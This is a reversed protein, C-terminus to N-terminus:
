ATGYAPSVVEVTAAVTTADNVTPRAKAGYQIAIVNDVICGTSGGRTVVPTIYRELPEYVDLVVAQGSAAAAVDATDTGALDAADGGNALAGGQAKVGPSGDTVTGIEAIFLVGEFDQMDLTTGVVAATGVTTYGIVRTIKVNPGLQM